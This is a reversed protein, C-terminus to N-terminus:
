FVVNRRAVAYSRSRPYMLENSSSSKVNVTSSISGLQDEGFDYPMDEDIKGMGVSCSRPVRRSGMMMAGSSPRMQQQKMMYLDVNMSSLIINNDNNSNNNHRGMSTRASASASRILERLDENDYSSSRSSSVSFSRPVTASLGTLNGYSASDSCKIMSNVYFDKAKGLVRIPITIIRMLRSSGKSRM